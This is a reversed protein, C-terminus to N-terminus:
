AFFSPSAMPIAFSLAEIASVIRFFPKVSSCIFSAKPSFQSILFPLSLRGKRTFYNGLALLQALNCKHAAKERKGTKRTEEERKESKPMKLLSSSCKM